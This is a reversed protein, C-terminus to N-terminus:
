LPLLGLQESCGVICRFGAPGSGVIRHKGADAIFMYGDADLTIADPYYLSITGPAGNGVVTSANLQNLQFLQIRHNAADAVYLNLSMKDVFIGNPSDFETSSTGSHWVGAALTTSNVGAVLSNKLVVHQTDLSCYLTSNTDVFLSHCSSNINMVPFAAQQM